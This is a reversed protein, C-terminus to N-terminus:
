VWKLAISESILWFFSAESLMGLESMCAKSVTKASISARIFFLSSCISSIRLWNSGSAKATILSVARRKLSFVTISAVAVVSSM